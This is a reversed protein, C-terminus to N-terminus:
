SHQMMLKGARQPSEFEQTPPPTSFQELLDTTNLASLPAQFTTIGFSDIMKQAIPLTEPVKLPDSSFDLIYLNNDNIM